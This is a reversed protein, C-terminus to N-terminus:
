KPVWQGNRRVRISKDPFVAERGELPDAKAPDTGKAVKEERQKARDAADIEIIRQGSTGVISHLGSLFQSRQERKDILQKETDGYKPLMARAEKELEPDTYAGGSQQRIFAQVFNDAATDAEKYDDSRLARTAGSVSLATQGPSSSLTKEGKGELAVLDEHALRARGYNVLAKGQFETGKFVPKRGPDAGEIKPQEWQRTNANYTLGTEVDQKVEPINGKAIRQKAEDAADLRAQQGIKAQEIAANRARAEVLDSEYKKQLQELKAQEQQIYPVARTQLTERESPPARRIEDAIQRMLPTMTPPLTPDPAEPPIYGAGVQQPGRPAQPPPAARIVPQPPPAPPPAAPPQPQAAQQRQMLAAALANRGAGIQDPTAVGGTRQAAGILAPDGGQAMVPPTPQRNPFAADFRGGGGFVTPTAEAPSPASPPPPQLPRPQAPPPPVGAPLPPLANRGDQVAAATPMRYPASGPLGTGGTQEEASLPAAPLLGAAPFQQAPTPQIQSALGPPAPAAPASASSAPAVSSLSSAVGPAIRNEFESGKAEAAAADSMVGRAMMAQAINDGISSLGEGLNRPHQRKQMLMALALRQRLSQPVNKNDVPSLIGSMGLTSWDVNSM